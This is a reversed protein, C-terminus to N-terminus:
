FLAGVSLADLWFQGEALAKNVVARARPEDPTFDEAASGPVEMLVNQGRAYRALHMFGRVAKEPTEYTPIHANQFARRAQNTEESSGLWNTLVPRETHKVSEIVAEAGELSSAVATPCYLVIVGDIDPEEALINLTASFREGNADGIIDVPNGHSWTPPCVANLKEITQPSIEALTGNLDSLADVAMVGAGGGNTVLVVRDGTVRPRMSLTEVADFIEDLDMARLIGAREFAADYVSDVGALAGTHSAAAKAAIASRGAKIAIVPKVRAAARAASMFKRANFERAHGAAEIYLVIADTDPDTAMYDLMDGFDVDAQDGMSVLHSFGLGRTSAWDLMTAIMAGSQAVFAVKGKRPTAEAFSANIGAPTSIIGICNPGAIRLLKPKAAALMKQELSIGNADKMDRLGATVVVAARTGREALEAVIGPISDPPTAIIALDPTIPLHAVDPYALVGNVALNKPNVPMIPGKFGGAFLNAAVVAGVSKPRTGAGILAISKPHFFAELNRISM